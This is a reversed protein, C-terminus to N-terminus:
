GVKEGRELKESILISLKGEMVEIEYEIKEKDCKSITSELDRYLNNIIEQVEGINSM